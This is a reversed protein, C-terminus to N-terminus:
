LGATIRHPRLLNRVSFPIESVVGLASNERNAFLEATLKLIAARIAANVIMPHEGATGSKVAAALDTENAFVRRNLYDTTHQVASDLLMQVVADEAGADIRLYGSVLQADVLEAM